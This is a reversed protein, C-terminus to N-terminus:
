CSQIYTNGEPYIKSKPFTISPPDGLSLNNTLNSVDPYRKGDIFRVEWRRLNNNIKEKVEISNENFNICFINWSKGKPFSHPYFLRRFVVIRKFNEFRKQEAQESKGSERTIKLNSNCANKLWLREKNLNNKTSIDGGYETNHLRKYFWKFLRAINSWHIEGKKQMFSAWILAIKIKISIPRGSTRAPLANLISRLGGARYELLEFFPNLGFEKIIYDRKEEESALVEYGEIVSFKECYLILGSLLDDHLKDIYNLENKISTRTPKGSFAEALVYAFKILEIRYENKLFLDLRKAKWSTDITLHRSV